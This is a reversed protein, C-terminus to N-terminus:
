EARLRRTCQLNARIGAKGNVRRRQIRRAKCCLVTGILQFTEPGNGVSDHVDEGGTSVMQRTVSLKLNYEQANQAGSSDASDEPLAAPLLPQSGGPEGQGHLLPQGGPGAKPDMPVPAGAIYGPASKHM